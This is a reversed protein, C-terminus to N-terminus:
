RHFGTTYSKDGFMNRHTSTSAHEAGKGEDIVWIYETDYKKDWRFPINHLALFIYCKKWSCANQFRDKLCEEAKAQMENPEELRSRKLAPEMELQEEKHHFDGVFPTMREPM